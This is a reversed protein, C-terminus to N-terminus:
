IRIMGEEHETECYVSDSWNCRAWDLAGPDEDYPYLPLASFLVEDYELPGYIGTVEMGALRIAFTECRTLFIRYHYTTVTGSIREKGSWEREETRSYLGSGAIEPQTWLAAFPGDGEILRCDV